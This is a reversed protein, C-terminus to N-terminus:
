PQPTAAPEGPNGAGAARSPARVVTGLARELEPNPRKLGNLFRSIRPQRVGIEWALRAQSWGTRQLFEAVERPGVSM